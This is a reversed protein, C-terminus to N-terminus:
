WQPAPGDGIVIGELAQLTVDHPTESIDIEICPLKRDRITNIKEEGTAHSMRIEVLLKRGGKEFIIDPRIGDLSEEARVKEAQVLENNTIFGMAEERLDQHFPSSLMSETLYERDPQGKKGYERGRFYPLLIEKREMLVQKAALHLNTEGMGQCDSKAEHAFHWVRVKGQKAILSHDCAKCICGCELGREVDEIGVCRGDRKRVGIRIYIDSRSTM